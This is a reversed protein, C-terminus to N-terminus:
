KAPLAEILKKYSHLSHIAFGHFASYRKFERQLQQIASHLRPSGLNAFSLKNPSIYVKNYIPWHLVHALSLKKQLLRRKWFPLLAQPVLSLTVFSQLNLFPNSTLSRTTAKKKNKITKPKEISSHILAFHSPPHPLHKKLSPWGQRPPGSFHLLYESPLPLTELGILIEKKQHSAYQLEGVGHAIIGDAGYIATRYDMIGIRDVIDIVHKNLKKRKGKYTVSFGGKTYPDTEDFWFPIDAGFSLRNKHALATLKELITLYQTALWQRRNNWLSSLLYPEIDFHLGDFREHPFVKKNYDIVQQALQLVHPHWKPLAYAKYGDLAYVEIHQRHLEAILLRWSKLSLKNMTKKLLKQAQHPLQIFLTDFRHKKLFSLLEKQKQPHGLYRKTEWLWTARRNKHTTPVFVHAQRSSPKKRKLPKRVIPPPVQIIKPPLLSPLPLAKQCFALTKVEIQGQGSLAEWIISAFFRRNM